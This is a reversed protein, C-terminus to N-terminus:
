SSNELEHKGSFVPDRSTPGIKEWQKVRVDKPMLKGSCVRAMVRLVGQKFEDWDDFKVNSMMSSSVALVKQTL